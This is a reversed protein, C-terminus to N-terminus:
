VDQDADRLLGVYTEAFHGDSDANALACHMANDMLQDVSAIERHGFFTPSVDVFDVEVARQAVWQFGVM